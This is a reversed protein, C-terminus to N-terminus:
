HESSVEACNSYGCGQIAYFSTKGDGWIKMVEIGILQGITFINSGDQKLLCGACNEYLCHWM